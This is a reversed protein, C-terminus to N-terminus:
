SDEKQKIYRTRRTREFASLVSTVGVSVMLLGLPITPFEPITFAAPSEAVGIRQVSNEGYGDYYLMFRGAVVVVDPNEVGRSDWSGVSGPVLIPNTASKNWNVGDLSTAYGIKPVIFTTQNLASFWIGYTTNDYFVSPSYLSGSDWAQSSNSPTLVPFNWKMWNFGDPSTAYLIRAVQSNPPDSASRATYWMEYGILTRTVFPSALLREDVGSPMLVPNHSYKTWSIGDQSIAVGVAGNQLDTLGAGRYWMLYQSGNWVVYGLEVYANDWAGPPGPTLVPGQHKSWMFGDLSTAYGVGVTTGSTGVYWM